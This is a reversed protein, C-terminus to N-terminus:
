SLITNIMIVIDIVNLINDGNMDVVEEFGGDFILNVMLVIDIVNLIGDNNLDGAVVEDSIESLAGEDIWYKIIDIDNQSLTGQPPMDEDSSSPLTIRIYLESESHVGPIIVSGNNGGNMVNNYTTLNLGGANGHCMICHNDFIPQIQTSYDVQSLLPTLLISIFINYIINVSMVM